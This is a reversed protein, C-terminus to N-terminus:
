IKWVEELNYKKRADDQFINIIFKEADILIWESSSHGESKTYIKYKQQKLQKFYNLGKTVM